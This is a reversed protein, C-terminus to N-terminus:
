ITVYTKTNYCKSKIEYFSVFMEKTKTGRENNTLTNTIQL